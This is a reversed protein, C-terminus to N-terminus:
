ADALAQASAQPQVIQQRLTPVLDSWNKTAPRLLCRISPYWQGSGDDHARWYWEHGPPLLVSGPRAMAGALHLPIGEVGVVQDLTAILDACDAISGIRPGVDFIDPHSALDTRSNDWMLSVLTGGTESLLDAIIDLTAGPAYRNWTIGIWPRPLNVLRGRWMATGVTSASLYPLAGPAGEKAFRSVFATALDTTVIPQPASDGDSTATDVKSAAIDAIDRHSIAMRALLPKLWHSVDGTVPVSRDSLARCMAIASLLDLSAPMQVADLGEWGDDRGSHRKAWAEDLRGLRMLYTRATDQVQVREEAPVLDLVRLAEDTRGAASLGDALQGILNVDKPTKRVLGTLMPVADQPRALDLLCRALECQIVPHGPMLTDLRRMLREAEEARGLDRLRGAHNAAIMPDRPSLRHAQASAELAAAYDGCRARAVGLNSLTEADDPKLESAREFFASAAALDSDRAALIGALIWTDASDPADKLAISLRSRAESLDGLDILVDVLAFLSPLRSPDEAVITELCIRADEAKEQHRYAIALNHLTDHNRPDLQMATALVSMAAEHDERAVLVGGLRGLAQANRPHREVLGRALFEADELRQEEILADIAEIEVGISAPSM